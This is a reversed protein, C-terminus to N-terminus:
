KMAFAYYDESSCIHQSKDFKELTGTFGADDVGKKFADYLVRVV